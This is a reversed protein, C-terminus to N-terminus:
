KKTIWESTLARHLYNEAKAVDDKWTESSKVGARLLYKVANGICYASKRPISERGVIMEIVDITENVNEFDYHKGDVPKNM